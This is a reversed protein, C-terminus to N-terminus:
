TIMAVNVSVGLTGGISLGLLGSISLSFTAASTLEGALGSPSCCSASPAAVQAGTWDVEWASAEDDFFFTGGYVRACVGWKRSM